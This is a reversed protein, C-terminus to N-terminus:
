HAEIIANNEFKHEDISLWKDGTVTTSNYIIPSKRLAFFARCHQLAKKSPKQKVNKEVYFWKGLKNCDNKDSM